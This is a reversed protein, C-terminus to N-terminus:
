NTKMWSGDGLNMRKRLQVLGRAVRMKVNSLHVGTAEAIEDYSMEGFFRLSVAEQYIPPLSALVKRLHAAQEKAAVVAEVKARVSGGISGDKFEQEERRRQQKRWHDRCRNLTVQYLWTSFKAEGRFNKLEKFVKLFVDQSLEESTERHGV